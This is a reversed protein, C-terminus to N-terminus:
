TVVSVGDINKAANDSIRFAPNHGAAFEKSFTFGNPGSVTLRTHDADIAIRFEVGISTANVAGVHEVSEKAAFAPLSLGFILLLSLPFLFRAQRM